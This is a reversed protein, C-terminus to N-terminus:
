QSLKMMAKHMLLTSIPTRRENELYFIFDKLTIRRKNGVNVKINEPVVHNKYIVLNIDNSDIQESMVSQKTYSEIHSENKNSIM